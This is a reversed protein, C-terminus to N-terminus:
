PAKKSSPPLLRTTGDPLLAIPIDRFSLSHNPDISVEVLLGKSVDPRFYQDFVFNGLSYYLTKERYVEKEQVVHPHSGIVADAGQDVFLRALRKEESTASAYENGWHAYVFLVDVSERLRAIDELSRSEASEPLYFANYNVFGIKTGEIEVSATRFSDDIPDGFFRIGADSLFKRTEMLGAEGFNLIHNNGINVMRINSSALVPAWATDFTFLYNRMEGPTSGASKSSNTTIPGELNVVVLNAQELTEQIDSVIADKGMKEARERIFRDLMMDGGFLIKIPRDPLKQVVNEKEAGVRKSDLPSHSLARDPRFVSVSSSHRGFLFAVAGLAILLVVAMLFLVASRFSM